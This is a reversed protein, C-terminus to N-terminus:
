SKTIFSPPILYFVLKESCERMKWYQCKFYNLYKKWTEAHIYHFSCIEGILTQPPNNESELNHPQQAWMIKLSVIIISRYLPYPVKPNLDKQDVPRYFRVPLREWRKLRDRRLASSTLLPNILREWDLGKGQYQHLFAREVLVAHKKEYIVEGLHKNFICYSICNMVFSLSMWFVFSLLARNQTSTSFYSIFDSWEFPM